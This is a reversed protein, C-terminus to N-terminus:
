TEDSYYNNNSKINRKKSVCFPYTIITSYYYYNSSERSAIAIYMRSVSLLSFDMFIANDKTIKIIPENRTIEYSIKKLQLTKFGCGIIGHTNNIYLFSTIAMGM